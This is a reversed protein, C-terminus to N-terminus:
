ASKEEELDDMWFAVQGGAWALYNRRNVYPRARMVVGEGVEHAQLEGGGDGDMYVSHVNRGVLIDVRTSSKGDNRFNEYGRYEGVIYVGDDMGNWDVRKKKM